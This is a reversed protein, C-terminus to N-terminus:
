QVDIGTIDIIAQEAFFVVHSMGVDGAIKALVMLVAALHEEADGHAAFALEHCRASEYDYSFTM